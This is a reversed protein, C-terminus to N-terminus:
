EAQSTKLIRWSLVARALSTGIVEREHTKRYEKQKGSFDGPQRRSRGNQSSDM